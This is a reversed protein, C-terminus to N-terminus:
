NENKNTQYQIPNKVVTKRGKCVTQNINKDTKNEKEGLIACSFTKRLLYNGNKELKRYETEASLTWINWGCSRITSCSM